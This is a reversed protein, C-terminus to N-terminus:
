GEGAAGATGARAAFVVGSVCMGAAAESRTGFAFGGADDVIADGFCWVWLFVAV